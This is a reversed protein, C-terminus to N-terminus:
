FLLFGRFGPALENLWFFKAMLGKTIVFKCMVVKLLNNFVFSSM